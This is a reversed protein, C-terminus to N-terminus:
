DLDPWEPPLEESAGPDPRERPTSSPNMWSAMNELDLPELEAAAGDAAAPRKASTSTWEPAAAEDPEPELNLFPLDSGGAGEEAAPPAVPDDLLPLPPPAPEEEPALREIALKPVPRPTAKQKQPRAAPKAPATVAPKEPATVAPKAPAALPAPRALEAGPASWAVAELHVVTGSGDTGFVHFSGAADSIMLPDEQPEHESTVRAREAIPGAVWDTDARWVWHVLGSGGRGIVRLEEDSGWAALGSAPAAEASLGARTELLDEVKWETGSRWAHILGGGEKVAFAHIGGPGRAGATDGTIGEAVVASTWQGDPDREMHLLRGTGGAVLVHLRGEHVILVPAGTAPEVGPCLTKLDGASWGANTREFHLINGGSGRAIVHAVPGIRVVTPDGAIAGGGAAPVEEARWGRFPQFSYAVLAGDKGRGVACVGGWPLQTPVPNGELRFRPGARRNDTRNTVRWRRRSARFHLLDGVYNRGFAHLGIGRPGAMTAPDSHLEHAGLEERETVNSGEWHRGNRRHFHLLGGDDDRAVVHLSRRAGTAAPKGHIKRNLGLVSRHAFTEGGLSAAPTRDYPVAFFGRVAHGGTLRAQLPGRLSFALRVEDDGPRSPDYVSLVVGTGTRAHDFALVQRAASARSYGDAHEVLTLLVPRGARLERRIRPWERRTLSAIDRRGPTLPVRIQDRWSGDPLRQWERLRPWVSDLAAIQRRRLEAHLPADPAPPSTVEPVARGDLYRDLAAWCMGGGLRLFAPTAGLGLDPGQVTLADDFAWGHASPKFTM